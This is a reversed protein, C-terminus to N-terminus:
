DDYGGGWAGNAAGGEKARQIAYLDVSSRTAAAQVNPGKGSYSPMDLSSRNFDMNARNNGGSSKTAGAADDDDDPCVVHLAARSLILRWSM